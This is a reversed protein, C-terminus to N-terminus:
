QKETWRKGCDNCVCDYWYEPSNYYDGGDSRPMRTVREHPCERQLNNRRTVLLAMKRDIAIRRKEFPNM